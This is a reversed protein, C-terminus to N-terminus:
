CSVTHYFRKLASNVLTEHDGFYNAPIKAPKADINYYSQLVSCAEPCGEQLEQPIDITVPNDSRIHRAALLVEACSDRLCQSRAFSARLNWVGPSDHWQSTIFQIELRSLPRSASKLCDRFYHLLFISAENVDHGGIWVSLTLRRVFVLVSSLKALGEQLRPRPSETYFSLPHLVGLVATFSTTKFIYARIEELLQKNVLFIAPFLGRLFRHDYIYRACRIHRIKDPFLFDYICHRLDLPIRLLLPMSAPSALRRGSATNEAM